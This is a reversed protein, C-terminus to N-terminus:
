SPESATFTKKGGSFVNAMATSSTYRAFARCAADNLKPEIDQKVPTNPPGV